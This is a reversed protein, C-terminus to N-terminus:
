FILDINEQKISFLRKDICFTLTVKHNLAPKFLLNGNAGVNPSPSVQM